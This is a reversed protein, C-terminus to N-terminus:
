VEKKLNKGRGGKAEAAFHLFSLVRMDPYLSTKELSYGIKQRVKLSERVVDYGGIKVAGSTPPIFCALIRMTTTKGAGNPGLFGVIEGKEIEFSIGKVAEILGFRKTVNKAEIM